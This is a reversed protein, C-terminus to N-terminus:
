RSKHSYTRLDSLFRECYESDGDVIVHSYFQQPLSPDQAAMERLRRAVYQDYWEGRDAISLIGQFAHKQRVTERLLTATNVFDHECAPAGLETLVMGIASPVERSHWRIITVGDVAFSYEGWVADCVACYSVRLSYQGRSVCVIMAVASIGIAVLLTRHRKLSIV